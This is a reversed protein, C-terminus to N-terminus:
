KKGIFVDGRQRAGKHKRRAAKSLVVAVSDAILVPPVGVTVDLLVTMAMLAVVIVIAPVPKSETAAFSVTSKLSPATPATVLAVLV